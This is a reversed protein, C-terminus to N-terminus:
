DLPPEHDRLRPGEDNKMARNIRSLNDTLTPHDPALRLARHLEQRAEEARGIAALSRALNNRPEIASPHAEIAGRFTEIAEDLRGIAELALGLNNLAEANRPDSLLAVRLHEIAAEPQGAQTLAAGLNNRLDVDGPATEIGRSIIEVARGTEGRDAYYAGLNAYAITASPNKAITDLWLTEENRYVAAQRFTLLWLGGVVAASISAFARGRLADAFWRVRAHAALVAIGVTPGMAALYQWHDAVRSYRAYYMQFFGLVPFLSLVFYTLAIMLGSALPRRRGLGLVALLAAMSALPLWSTVSAPDIEWRPYVFTLKAPWALRSLYFWPARGAVILRESWTDVVERPPGLERAHLALTAGGALASLLFFPLFWRWRLPASRFSPLAEMLVLVVPLMVTSTKSALALAFLPVSAWLWRTRGSARFAVWAHLTLLYFCGSQVNKLETIWAVSQVHVPHLAFILAALWGGRWGLRTMLRWILLANLLHLVVNLAHFAPAQLGWLRRGLWFTTSALPYYFAESTWLRVLGGPSTMHPNRTLHHDDDWLFEGRLAPGYAAFTLLAVVGGKLWLGPRATLRRRRGGARALTEEGVM